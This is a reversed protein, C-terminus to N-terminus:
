FYYRPLLVGFLAVLHLAMMGWRLAVHGGPRWREPLLNLLGVVSLLLTRRIGVYGDGHLFSPYESTWVRYQGDM